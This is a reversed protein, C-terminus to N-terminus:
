PLRYLRLGGAESGVLLEPSRDNDLDAFAPAALNPADIALSDPAAFSPAQATGTNRILHLGETQSGTVIDLDGDGDVDRLAPASRNDVSGDTLLSDDRTFAPASASGTNRYVRLAGGGTGLVLDPVGDGTLDGLAPVPNSVRSLSLLETPAAFTGDGQGEAMLIRGKWTGVVLDPTGDGTLDGLAPAYHYATPLDLPSRMRFRPSSATGTNELVYIRSTQGQAPDIKNALLGDTDGDGDLDAWATTSESGVDLAGLFQATQHRFGDDTQEYHHFNKSLTTNADFAGGLVGVFLDLQGDGDWDTLAPANYGSTKVPESPPFPQPAGRLNPRTPSGTNEILLLGPEFFDGWFLDKDGDGDIDAFALTNAGHRASAMQQNVIEIGEFEDTVKRFHPIGATDGSAEYRAVTGDLKGLFLDLRGNGDIDTVNPINQRDSFIPKGSPTRLSDAFLEFQPDGAPGTNRYVRIYSYPREVLLDPAGDQDLDTFRFWEGLQVEQFHDTRWVLRASDRDGGVGQVHEFFALEGTKEQLFLDQDGDQDADVFQPRPVNLGGYFPHRLRKGTSDLVAFSPTVVRQYRELLAQPGKSAESTAASRSGTCGSVGVVFLAALVAAFCVSRLTRSM